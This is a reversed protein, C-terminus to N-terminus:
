SKKIEFVVNGLQANRHPRYKEPNTVQIGIVGEFHVSRVERKIYILRAFIPNVHIFIAILGSRTHPAAISLYGASSVGVPQALPLL